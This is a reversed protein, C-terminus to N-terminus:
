ARARHIARTNEHLGTTFRTNRERQRGSEYRRPPNGRSGSPRVPVLSPPNAWHVTPDVPLLHPLYNGKADTLDNVWTVVIPTGRKAEITYSPYNFTAPNDIAGYGWVTTEPLGRPLIQQRFQRVAM